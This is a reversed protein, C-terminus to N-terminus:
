SSFISCLLYTQIDAAIVNLNFLINHIYTIVNTKCIQECSIRGREAVVFLILIYLINAEIYTVYSVSYVLKNLVVVAYTRLM